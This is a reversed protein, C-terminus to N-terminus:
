PGGGHSRANTARFAWEPAKRKSRLGSRVGCPSLCLHRRYSNIRSVTVTSQYSRAITPFTYGLPAAPPCIERFCSRWKGLEDCWAAEFQPGRLSDPEESSFIQAVAGSTWVLRKRGVELRPADKGSVALIGSPGEIMVERVDGFTEGVLAIRGHRLAHSFPSWGRALANVWEAGLRTKGAGRGGMVLWTHPKEELQYQGIRAARFWTGLAQEAEEGTLKAAAWGRQM